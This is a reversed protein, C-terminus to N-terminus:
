TAAIRNIACSQFGCITKGATRVQRSVAWLMRGVFDDQNTSASPRALAHNVVIREKGLVGVLHTEGWAKLTKHLASHDYTGTPVEYLIPTVSGQCAM